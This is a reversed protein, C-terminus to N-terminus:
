SSKKGRYVEQYEALLELQNETPAVCFKLEALSFYIDACRECLVGQALPIEGDDGYIAREIDTDPIRYREFTACLDGKRIIVEKCSSCHKGRKQLYQSYDKPEYWIHDGGDVDHDDYCYCSLPM